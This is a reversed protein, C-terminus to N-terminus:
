FLYFSATDMSILHNQTCCRKEQQNIEAAPVRKGRATLSALKQPTEGLVCIGFSDRMDM